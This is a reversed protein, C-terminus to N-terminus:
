LPASAAPRASCARTTCARVNNETFVQEGSAINAGDRQALQQELVQARAPLAGAAPLNLQVGAASSARQGHMHALFAKAEPARVYVYQLNTCSSLSAPLTGQLANSALSRDRGTLCVSTDAAHSAARSFADDAACIRVCLDPQAHRRDDVPDVGHPQQQLPPQQVCRVCSPPTRLFHLTMLARMSSLELWFILVCLQQLSTLNGFSDPITSALANGSLDRRACGAARAHTATCSAFASSASACACHRVLNHFEAHQKGMRQSVGWFAHQWLSIQLAATDTRVAPPVIFVMRAVVFAASAHQRAAHARTAVPECPNVRLWRFALRALACSSCTRCGRSRTRFPVRTSIARCTGAHPM